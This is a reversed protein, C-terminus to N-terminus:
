LVETLIRFNKFTNGEITVEVPKGILDHVCGVTADNLTQHVFEVMKVIAESRENGSWARCSESINVTYKGGTGVCSGGSLKFQLDMGM